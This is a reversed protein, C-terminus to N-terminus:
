YIKEHYAHRDKPQEGENKEFKLYNKDKEDDKEKMRQDMDLVRGEGLRYIVDGVYDGDDEGGDNDDKIFMKRYFDGDVSSTAPYFYRLNIEPDRKM